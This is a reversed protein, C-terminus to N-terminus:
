ESRLSEVPNALAAKVSQFSVTLFAILVALVGAGAFMWWEMEIRYAFDALWKDMFYYALPSAVVIAIFVLKLFDKALLGTIGAVGAGLVKRIGIEKTRQEAAFAALAFLGLCSILIAITTLSGVMGAMQRDAKYNKQFDDDLFTYAFPEGPVLRSWASEVSGLLSPIDSGAQARAILYSYHPRNNREFAYPEIVEHMNEFHFDRVVGVIEYRFDQGEWTVIMTQGIAAQPTAFGYKKAATENVVIRNLTDAPFERSFLRGALVKVGLTNLFDVDVRNRRTGVSQEMTQGERRFGSDSANMIGPYFHSAGVNALRSDRELEAKLAPYAAKAAASTLPLVLQHDRYFGLDATQMFRMQAGIVFSALILGASIVFQFVVLTKRLRVASLHNGLRGKLVDVPRFSSLYFAPYIGALLGTLLSMGFLGAFLGPMKSVSLSLNQETLENFFPLIAYALGLAALFSVSTAIVSEGLFQRILSGQGAGVSKRVGVEGARKASRATSLNMFNVCALLLTFLAISGLIYLYTKSGTAGTQGAKGVDSLYAERLPMLFQKKRYGHDKLHPTVYKDVFAPLKAELAKGDTGPRLRVFTAFMNNGGLSTNTRVFEGIGGSYLSMFFRGKLQTPADPLKVVGTVRFDMEGGEFWDHSIRLIRGLAPQDDFFKRAMEELIVVTGPERLATAPEGEVFTYRFMEFYTSDVFMGKPESFTARVVGGEMSRILTKEQQFIRHVRVTKEIEGFEQQLAAALPSPSNFSAEERNDDAGQLNVFVTGVRYLDEVREHHHDYHTENYIHLAAILCCALGISLGFINILTLGPQKYLNRLAIKLYNNLM